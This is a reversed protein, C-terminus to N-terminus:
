KGAAVFALMEDIVQRAKPTSAPFAAVLTHAKDTVVWGLHIRRLDWSPGVWYGFRYLIAGGNDDAAKRATREVEAPMSSRRFQRIDFDQLHGPANVFGNCELQSSPRIYSSVQVDSIVNGVTVISANAQRDFARHGTDIGDSIRKRSV